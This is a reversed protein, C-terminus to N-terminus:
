QGAASTLAPYAQKLGPNEAIEALTATATIKGEVIRTGAKAEVGTGWQGTAVIKTPQAVNEKILDLLDTGGGLLETEGWKDSLLTVAQEPTHPRYYTFNKMLGKRREHRPGGPRARPHISCAARPRRHRQLRRQRRGCVDFDDAARRHRYRRAG